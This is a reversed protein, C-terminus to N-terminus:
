RVRRWIGNCHGFVAHQSYSDPGAALIASVWGIQVFRFFLSLFYHALQPFESCMGLYM